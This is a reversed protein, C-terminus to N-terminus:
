KKGEELKQEETKPTSALDELKIGLDEAKDKLSQISRSLLTEKTPCQVKATECHNVIKDVLDSV